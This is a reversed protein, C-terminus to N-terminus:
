VVFHRSNEVEPQIFPWIEDSKVDFYEYGLSIASFIKSAIVRLSSDYFDIALLVEDFGAETLIM